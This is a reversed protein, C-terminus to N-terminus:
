ATDGRETVVARLARWGFRLLMVTFAFPLILQTIWTPVGLFSLAGGERELLVLQWCYWAMVACVAAAFGQTVFRAIRRPVGHWFRAVVDVALHKDERAAAMAGVLATWLVLVRLLDDAWLLGSDFALRAVIQGGALLILAVVLVTLVGDEVFRLARVLPSRAPPEIHSYGTSADALSPEGPPPVERTPTMRGAVQARSRESRRVAM